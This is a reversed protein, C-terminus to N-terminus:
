PNGPTVTIISQLHRLQLQSLELELHRLLEWSRGRGQFVNANGLLLFGPLVGPAACLFLQAPSPVFVKWQSAGGAFLIPDAATGELM